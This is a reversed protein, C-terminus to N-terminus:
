TFLINNPDNADLVQLALKYLQQVFSYMLSTSCPSIDHSSHNCKQPSTGIYFACRQLEICYTNLVLWM